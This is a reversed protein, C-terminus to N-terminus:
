LTQRRPWVSCSSSSTSCLAARSLAPLESPVRSLPRRGALRRRGAAPCPLASCPLGPCPRATGAPRQAGGSWDRRGPIGRGGPAWRLQRDARGPRATGGTRYRPSVGRFTRQVSGEAPVLIRGTGCVAGSPSLAAEGEPRAERGRLPPPAATKPGRLKRGALSRARARGAWPCGSGAPGSKTQPGAPRTGARGAGNGQRGAPEQPASGHLAAARPFETGRSRPTRPSHGGCGNREYGEAAAPLEGTVRPLSQTLLPSSPCLSLLAALLLYIYKVAVWRCCRPGALRQGPASSEGRSGPRAGNAAPRGAAGRVAGGGGRGGAGGRAPPLTRPLAPPPRPRPGGRPAGSLQRLQSPEAGRYSSGGEDGGTGLPRCHGRRPQGAAGAALPAPGPPCATQWKGTAALPM